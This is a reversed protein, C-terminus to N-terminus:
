EPVRYEWDWWWGDGAGMFRLKGKRELFVLWYTFGDIEIMRWAFWYHWNSLKQFRKDTLNVWRM